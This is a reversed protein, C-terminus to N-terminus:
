RRYENGEKDVFFEEGSQADTVWAGWEEMFLYDGAPAYKLPVVTEGQSNIFGYLSDRGVWAVGNHFPSVADFQPEIVMKGTHDAFGYQNGQRLVVRGDSFDDSLEYTSKGTQNGKRDYIYWTNFEEDELGEMYLDIPNFAKCVIYDGSFQGSIVGFEFPIVAKGNKDIVGWRENGSSDTMAAVALGGTFPYVVDYLFPIPKVFSCLINKLEDNFCLFFEWIPGTNKIQIHFPVKIFSTSKFWIHNFEM